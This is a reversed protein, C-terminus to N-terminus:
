IAPSKRKFELLITGHKQRSIERWLNGIPAVAEKNKSHPIERNSKRCRKKMHTVIEWFYSRIPFRGRIQKRIGQFLYGIPIVAEKNKSNPIEGNSKRWRKKM